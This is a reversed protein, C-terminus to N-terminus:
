YIDVLFKTLHARRSYHIFLILAGLAMPANMAGRMKLEIELRHISPLFRPRSDPPSLIPSPVVIQNPLRKYKKSVTDIKKM